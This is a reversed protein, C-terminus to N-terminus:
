WVNTSFDSETNSMDHDERAQPCVPNALGVCLRGGEAESSLILFNYGQAWCHCSPMTTAQSGLRQAM